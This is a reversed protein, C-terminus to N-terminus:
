RGRVRALEAEARRLAEAADDAEARADASRREAKEADARARMADREAETAQKRLEREAARAEDVLARARAREERREEAASRKPAAPRKARARKSPPPLAAELGATLFLGSGEVDENLRGRRLLQSAEEDASAARLTSAIRQVTADTAPRGAERLAEEAASSLTRLADRRRTTAAQYGETGEGALAQRQGELLERSADLLERLEDPNRRALQNVAWASVTPRALARVQEAADKQGAKRLRKVLDNRYPTFEDLPLGYLQDLEEELNPVVALDPSMDSRPSTRGGLM